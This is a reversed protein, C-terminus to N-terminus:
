LTTDKSEELWWIGNTGWYWCPENRIIGYKRVSWYDLKVSDGDKVLVYEGVPPTRELISVWKDM